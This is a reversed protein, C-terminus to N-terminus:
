LSRQHEYCYVLGGFRRSRALCYDRVRESVPQGCRACFGDASPATEPPAPATATAAIERGNSQLLRRVLEERDWLEVRNAAALKKAQATFSSNTVVYARIAKYYPAAATAEQVAKVGVPKQRRKAQVVAREDGRTILLDCGFDGRASGTIEVRYGLGRFLLALRREFTPGDMADIERIGARRLRWERWLLQTLRAALVVGLLASLPWLVTLLHALDPSSSPSRAAALVSLTHDGPLPVELLRWGRRM